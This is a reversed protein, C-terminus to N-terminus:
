CVECKRNIKISGCRVLAARIICEAALLGPYIRDPLGRNYCANPEIYAKCTGEQKPLCSLREWTTLEDTKPCLNFILPGGFADAGTAILRAGLDAIIWNLRELNMTGRSNLKQLAIIIGHKITDNLCKPYDLDCVESGCITSMEVPTLAGLESDRCAGFCDKWGLRDLWDDMTDYATFPDSERLAPWLSNILVDYLRLATYVSHNAINFCPRSDYVCNLAVDTGCGLNNAQFRETARLKANDWLPGSPLLNVFNCVLSCPDINCLLPTCCEGSTSTASARSYATSNSVIGALTITAAGAIYLSGNAEMGFTIPNEANGSILLDADLETAAEDLTIEAGGQILLNGFFDVIVNDLATFEESDIPLVGSASSQVTIQESFSASIPLVGSGAIVIDDLTSSLWGLSPISSASVSVIPDIDLNGGASIALTASASLQIASLDISSDGEMAVVTSAALTVSTSLTANATIVLNGIATLTVDSVLGATASLFLDSDSSSTVGGLTVGVDATTKALLLENVLVRYFYDGTTPSGSPSSWSNLVNNSDSVIVQEGGSTTYNRREREVLVAPQTFIFPSLPTGIANAVVLAWSTGNTVNFSWSLNTRDGYLVGVGDLKTFADSAWAGFPSSQKVGRYAVLIVSTANTWTGSSMTSGTAYRYCLVHMASAAGSVSHRRVNWGSPVILESNDNTQTAFAIVIDNVQLGTLDPTSQAGKAVGVFTIAM